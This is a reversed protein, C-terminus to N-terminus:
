KLIVAQIHLFTLLLECKQLHVLKHAQMQQMAAM